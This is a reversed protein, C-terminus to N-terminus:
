LESLAKDIDDLATKPLEAPAPDTSRRAYVHDGLKGAEVSDTANKEGSQVSFHYAPKDLGYQALSGSKPFSDARLDRLRTLFTDMKDSSVNKAKPATQKWQSEHREFVWHGKPTQVEVLKADFSSFSFLDKERLDNQNKQFQTVFASNLTFVPDLASNMAFYRGGEKDKKGVVITQTGESGTLALRLEPSGFGYEGGKKKDEATITQMTL